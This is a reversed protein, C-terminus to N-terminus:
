SVRMPRFAMWGGVLALLVVIGLTALTIMRGRLYSQPEFRFEITHEGAPLKVARFCYNARYVKTEEGDITCKWGPFWVDTLVLFGERGDSELAVRNPQYSRISVQNKLPRWQETADEFDELYVTARFNAVAFLELLDSRQPLTMAQPVFFARPLAYKNDWLAVTLSQIGGGLFDYMEAQLNGKLLNLRLGEWGEGLFGNPLTRSSTIVYRVNLLDLLSTNTIEFNGIVPYTFTSSLARLPQDSGAILQLYERYRLVDLPSYGRVADVGAILALPAGSGLPLDSNTDAIGFVRVHEREPNGILAMWPPLDKYVDWHSQPLSWNMVLADLVLWGALILSGVPKASTVMRWAVFPLVAALVLYLHPIVTHGEIKQRLVFGGMLIWSAAAVRVVWRECSVTQEPTLGGAAFRAQVAVAALWAIPLTAIVAMRAPQRFLNFGPLPQFVIAGGMAFLFLGLCVAAEYRTRGKRLIPAWVAVILWLMALGGRDEWQLNFPQDSLPPGVLFLLVNLGNQLVTQSGVGGSRSSQGAAELTPLLQIATLGVTIAVIMVGFGLWRMVARRRNEAQELVVGFTWV